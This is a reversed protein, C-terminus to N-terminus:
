LRGLHDRAHTAGARPKEARRASKVRACVLFTVTLAVGVLVTRRVTRVVRRREVPAEVRVITSTTWPGSRVEVVTWVSRVVSGCDVVVTEGPWTTTGGGPEVDAL